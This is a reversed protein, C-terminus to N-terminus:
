KKQRRKVLGSPVEARTGRSDPGTSVVCGWPICGVVRVRTRDVTSGGVATRRSAGAIPGPAPVVIAGVLAPLLAPLRPLLRDCGAATPPRRGGRQGDVRRGPSRGPVSPDGRGARGLAQAFRPPFEHELEAPPGITLLRRVYPWPRGLASYRTGFTASIGLALAILAAIWPVGLVFAASLIAVSLGAGFRQGRPDILRAPTPTPSM